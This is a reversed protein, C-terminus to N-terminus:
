NPPAQGGPALPLQNKDHIEAGLMRLVANLQKEEDGDETAIAHRLRALIAEDVPKPYNEVPSWCSGGYLGNARQAKNGLPVQRLKRSRGAFRCV